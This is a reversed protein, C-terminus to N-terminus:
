DASPPLEITLGGEPTTDVEFLINSVGGTNLILPLATPDVSFVVQQDTYTEGATGTCTGSDPFNFQPSVPPAMDGNEDTVIKINLPVCEAVPGMSIQLQL